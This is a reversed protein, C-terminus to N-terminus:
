EHGGGPTSPSVEPAVPFVRSWDRKMSVLTWGKSVADDLGKSLRGVHSERDYAYEREGDDHHLILGLRKGAGATTWELMQYDGDSNGFALIPRRGIHRQIGVPKGANDDIFAVEPQRMLVPMGDQVKYQMAIQSGVVQEPPIGYVPETWARMFDIGGGSVIFTKFGNARLYDLLELMPQYVVQTYLRDFRPHRASAIWDSVIREFETTTMNAHTAALLKTVGNMGSAQLAKLDGELLAKFPQEQKWEPHEPALAKVRDIIFALQTYMPQEVWLTGDNDFVAIREAPPVFSPSSATTVDEVFATITTRTPGDTWSPLPEASALASFALLAVLTLLHRM